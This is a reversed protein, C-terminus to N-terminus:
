AAPTYRLGVVEYEGGPECRSEAAKRTGYRIAEGVNPTLTGDHALFRGSPKHRVAYHDPPGHPATLDLIVTQMLM